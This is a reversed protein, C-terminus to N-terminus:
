KTEVLSPQVLAAEKEVSAKSPRRSHIWGGKAGSKQSSTKTKMVQGKQTEREHTQRRAM